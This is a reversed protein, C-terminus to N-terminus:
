NASNFTMEKYRYLQNDSFYLSKKKKSLITQQFNKFYLYFVIQLQM